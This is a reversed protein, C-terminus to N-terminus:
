ALCNITTMKTSKADCEGPMTKLQDDNALVSKEDLAYGYGTNVYAVRINCFHLNKRRNWIFEDNEFIIHENIGAMLTRIVLPNENCEKYLEILKWDYTHGTLFYIQSNLQIDEPDIMHPLLKVVEEETHPTSFAFLWSNGIFKNHTNNTNIVDRKFNCHTEEADFIVFLSNKNSQMSKQMKSPDHDCLIFSAMKNQMPLLDLPGKQVPMGGFYSADNAIVAISEIDM